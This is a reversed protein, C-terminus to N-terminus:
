KGSKNLSSSRYRQDPPFLSNGRSGNCQCCALRLNEPNNSGGKSSPLLHDLTLQEFPLDQRCWFCVLGFGWDNALLRKVADKQKKTMQKPM